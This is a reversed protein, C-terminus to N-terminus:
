TDTEAGFTTSRRPRGSLASSKRAFPQSRAKRQAHQTNGHPPKRVPQSPSRFPLIWRHFVAPHLPSSAHAWHEKRLSPFIPIQFTPSYCSPYFLQSCQRWKHLRPLRARPARFAKGMEWKEESDIARMTRRVQSCPGIKSDGGDEM